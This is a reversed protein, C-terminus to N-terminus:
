SRPQGNQVMPSIGNFQAKQEDSLSAYVEDLAGHVLQIAQLMTDLRNAM